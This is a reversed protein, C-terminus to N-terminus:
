VKSNALSGIRIDKGGVERAWRHAEREAPSATRTAAPAAKPTAAKHRAQNQRLAKLYEPEDNSM